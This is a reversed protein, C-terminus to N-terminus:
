NKIKACITNASYSMCDGSSLMFHLGIYGFDSPSVTQNHWDYAPGLYQLIEKTVDQSDGSELDGIIQLVPNPGRVKPGRYIYSKGNLVYRVSYMKKENELIISSNIWQFVRVKWLMYMFNFSYYIALYTNQTQSRSHSLLTKVKSIRGQYLTKNKMAYIGLTIFLTVAGTLHSVDGLNLNQVIDFM